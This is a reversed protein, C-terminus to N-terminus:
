PTVEHRKIWNSSAQLLAEIDINAASPRYQATLAAPDFAPGQATSNRLFEQWADGSLAAIDRRPWARLAVAKLLANIAQLAAGPDQKLEYQQRISELQRLGQRRYSNRQYRRYLWWAAVALVLLLIALSLWWGPALPWWGILAPERLPHLQELPDTPNV